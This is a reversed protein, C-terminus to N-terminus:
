RCEDQRGDDGGVAGGVALSLELFAAERGWDYARSDRGFAGAGRDGASWRRSAQPEGDRVVAGQAPRLHEALPVMGSLDFVLFMSVMATSQPSTVAIAVEIKATPRSPAM